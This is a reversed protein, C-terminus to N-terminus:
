RYGARYRTGGPAMPAMPVMAVMPAMPAFPVVPAMPVVPSMPVMLVMPGISGVLWPGCSVSIWIFLLIYLSDLIGQTSQQKDPNPRDRICM